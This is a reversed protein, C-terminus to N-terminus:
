PSRRFSRIEHLAEAVAITSAEIAPLTAKQTELALSVLRNNEAKLDKNETKLDNYSWGPVLQRTIIGAIVLGLVGWSAWPPLAPATEQALVGAPISFLALIGLKLVHVEV